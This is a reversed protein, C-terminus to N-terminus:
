DNESLRVTVTTQKQNIDYSYSVLKINYIQKGTVDPTYTTIVSETIEAPANLQQMWTNTQTTMYYTNCNDLWATASYLQRTNARLISGLGTIGTILVILAIQLELISFGKPHQNGLNSKM